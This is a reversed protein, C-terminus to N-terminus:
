RKATGLHFVLTGVIIFAASLVLNQPMSEGLYGVSVLTGVVAAVSGIQSLYVPGAMRQLIFYFLYMISFLSIQAALLGAIQPAVMLSNLDARNFVIIFPLLLIGAGLLMLAALYMSSVGSPWRLTRYINGAAIIFPSTVSLAVWFLSSEGSTAKSLALVTGGILGGTVGLAKLLNFRDMRLVLTLLYTILIPFAFTLSLFGAGVHKVAMFGIANPLAFLAGAILGYEVTRRNIVYTAGKLGEGILLVLGGGFLSILLFPLPAAGANIALKAIVLSLGLLSGVLFVCAVARM